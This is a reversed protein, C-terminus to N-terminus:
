MSTSDYHRAGAYSESRMSPFSAVACGLSVSSTDNLPVPVARLPWPWGCRRRVIPFLAGAGAYQPNLYLAANAKVKQVRSCVHSCTSWPPCQRTYKPASPRLECATCNGGILCSIQAHTASCLAKYPGRGSSVSTAWSALEALAVRGCRRTLLQSDCPRRTHELIDGALYRHHRRLQPRRTYTRAPNPPRQPNRPGFIGASDTHWRWSAAGTLLFGNM